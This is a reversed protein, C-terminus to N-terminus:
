YNDSLFTKTLVTNSEYDVKEFNNKRLNSNSFIIKINLLKKRCLLQHVDITLLKM